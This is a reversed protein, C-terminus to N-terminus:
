VIRQNSNKEDSDADGVEDDDDDGGGGGDDHDDDDDDDDGPQGPRFHVYWTHLRKFIM